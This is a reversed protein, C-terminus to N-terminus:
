LLELDPLNEYMDQWNNNSRLAEIVIELPDSFIVLIDIEGEITPRFALREVPPDFQTGVETKNSRPDIRYWGIGNLHVANLGHLCFSTGNDDKSLRQYCIGAPISNARM